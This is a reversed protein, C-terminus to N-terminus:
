QEIDNQRGASSLALYHVPDQADLHCILIFAAPPAISLRHNADQLAARPDLRTQATHLQYECAPKM